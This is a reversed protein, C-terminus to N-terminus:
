HNAGVSQQLIPGSTKSPGGPDPQSHHGEPAEPQGGRHREDDVDGRRQDTRCRGRPELDQRRARASHEQAIRRGHLDRQPELTRLDPRERSMVEGRPSATDASIETESTTRAQLMWGLITMGSARADNAYRPPMRSVCSCWTRARQFADRVAHKKEPIATTNM